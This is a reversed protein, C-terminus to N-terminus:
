FGLDPMAQIRKELETQIFLKFQSIEDMPNTKDYYSKMFNSFVGEDIDFEVTYDGATITKIDFDIFKNIQVCQIYDFYIITWLYIFVAISGAALGYVKRNQKFEEPVECAYQIFFYAAKNCEDSVDGYAVNYMNEITLDDLHCVNKGECEKTIYTDIWEKDLVDNCKEIHAGKSQEEIVSNLCIENNDIERNILGYEIFNHNIQAQKGNTCTLKIKGAELRTGDCFTEAGGLNGLTFKQTALKFGTLGLTSMTEMQNESYFMFIPICFITIIIFMFSLSLMIGLYANVGYGLMLFPEEMLERDTKPVKKEM